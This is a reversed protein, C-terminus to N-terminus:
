REEPAAQAQPPSNSGPPADFRSGLILAVAWLIGFIIGVIAFGGMDPVILGSGVVLAQLATGLHRAWTFRQLGALVFAAVAMGGWVGSAIGASIGALNIAVPIALAIVMGQFGLVVACLMRM